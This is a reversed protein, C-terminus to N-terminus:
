QNRARPRRYLFRYPPSPPYVAAMEGGLVCSGDEVQPDLTRDLLELEAVSGAWTTHRPGLLELLRAASLRPRMSTSYDSLDDGELADTVYARWQGIRSALEQAAKSELRVSRTM